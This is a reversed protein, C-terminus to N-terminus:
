PLGLDGLLLLYVWDPLPKYRTVDLDGSPDSPALWWGTCLAHCPFEPRDSNAGLWYASAVGDATRLDIRYVPVHRRAGARVWGDASFAYSSLIAQIRAPDNVARARRGEAELPTVIVSSVATHAPPLPGQVAVFKTCSAIVVLLGAFGLTRGRQTLESGM